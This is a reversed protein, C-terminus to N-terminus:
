KELLGKYYNQQIQASINKVTELGVGVMIFISTGAFAFTKNANTLILVILPILAVMALYISGPLTIRSIIYNLYEKTDKGPRIEPIFGGCDRMNDAIEETNFAITVYFYSFFIIMLVYTIIYLFTDGNAFYTNIWYIIKSQKHNEDSLHRYFYLNVILGPIYLLSSTFIVPIVGSMNLKIPIYTAGMTNESQKLRKITKRNILRRAYIVSINRQSQEVFVVLCIIILGTLLILLVTTNGQNSYINSLSSPLSSSISTFILLSIGNGIGKETIIEGIWMIFASSATFTLILITITKASFQNSIIPFSCGHFLSGSKILSVLTASNFLALIITLYRTYQILKTQGIQGEKYLYQFHPVIVRLLQIIISSTVYPMVGLAFISVQLLAGGSFLNIIKYIGYNDQFNELSLCQNVNHYNVGPAPIYSGLRFISIIFLTILLKYKLEFICSLKKFISFM